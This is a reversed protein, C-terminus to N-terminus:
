PENRRRRRSPSATCCSGTRCRAARVSRWGTPAACGLAIHDALQQSDQSDLVRGKLSTGLTQTPSARALARPEVEGRQGREALPSPVDKASPCPTLGAESREAHCPMPHREMQDKRACRIPHANQGATTEARRGPHKVPPRNMRSLRTNCARKGAPERSSAAKPIM